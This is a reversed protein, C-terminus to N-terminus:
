CKQKRESTQKRPRPVELVLAPGSHDRQPRAMGMAALCWSPTPMSTASARPLSLPFVCCIPLTLAARHMPWGLATPYDARTAAPPPPPMCSRRLFGRWRPTGECGQKCWPPGMCQTHAARVAATVRHRDDGRRHSRQSTAFFHFFIREFCAERLLWGHGVFFGQHRRKEGQWHGGGGRECAPVVAEGGGPARGGGRGEM